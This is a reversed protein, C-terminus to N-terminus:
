LWSSAAPPRRRASSPLASSIRPSRAIQAIGRGVFRRLLPESLRVYVINAPRSEPAAPESKDDAKKARFPDLWAAVGNFMSKAAPAQRGARLAELVHKQDAPSLRAVAAAVERGDPRRFKATQANAAILVATSQHRGTVDTWTREPQGPIEIFANERKSAVQPRSNEPTIAQKQGHATAAALVLFWVSFLIRM